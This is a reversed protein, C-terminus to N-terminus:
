FRSGELLRRHNSSRQDRDQDVFMDGLSGSPFQVHFRFISRKRLRNEEVVWHYEPEVNIKGPTEWQGHIASTRLQGDQPAIGTAPHLQASQLGQKALNSSEQSKSPLNALSIPGYTHLSHYVQSPFTVSKFRFTSTNVHTGQCKLRM